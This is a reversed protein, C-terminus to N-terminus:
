ARGRALDVMPDRDEISSFCKTDSRAVVREAPTSNPDVLEAHFSGPM